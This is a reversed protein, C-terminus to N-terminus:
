NTEVLDILSEFRRSIHETALAKKIDRDDKLAILEDRIASASQEVIERILPAASNSYFVHRVNGYSTRGGRTGLYTLVLWKLIPVRVEDPCDVLAGYEQFSRLLEGHHGHATWHAGVEAMNELVGQFFDIRASRRLYAFVGAARAVRVMREDITRGAIEQLHNGIRALVADPTRPRVYSICTYANQQVVDAM